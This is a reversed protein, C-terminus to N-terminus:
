VSMRMLWDTKASVSVKQYGGSGLLPPKGESHREPLFSPLLWDVNLHTNIIRHTEMFLGLRVSMSNYGRQLSKTIGSCLADAARGPSLHTLAPARDKHSSHEGTGSQVIVSVSAM